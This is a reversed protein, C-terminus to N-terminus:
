FIGKLPSHHLVSINKIKKLIYSYLLIKINFIALIDLHNQDNFILDM